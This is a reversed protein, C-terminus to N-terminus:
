RSPATSHLAALVILHTGLLHTKNLVVRRVRLRDVLRRPAHVPWLLRKSVIEDHAQMCAHM